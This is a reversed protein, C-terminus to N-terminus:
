RASELVKSGALTAEARNTVGLKSYISKIHSAVTNESVVLQEAIASNKLGMVLHRLVERERRTLGMHQEGRTGIERHLENMRQAATSMGLEDAINRGQSLLTTARRIIARRGSRLAMEAFNVTAWVLPALFGSSEYVRLSEEYQEAATTWREAATLGIARYHNSCWMRAAIVVGDLTNALELPIFSNALERDRNAHAVMYEAFLATNHMAPPMGSNLWSRTRIGISKLTGSPLLSLQMAHGRLMLSLDINPRSNENLVLAAIKKMTQRAYNLDGTEAAILADLTELVMRQGSDLEALQSVEDLLERAKKWYGRAVALQVSYYGSSFEAYPRKWAASATRFIGIYRDATDGQGLVLATRAAQDASTCILEPDEVELAHSVAVISSEMSEDFRLQSFSVTARRQWALCQARRDGFEVASDLAKDLIRESEAVDSMVMLHVVGLRSLVQAHESSGPKAIDTAARLMELVRRNYPFGGQQQAVRLADAELGSDVFLDFADCILDIGASINVANLTRGLGFMAEARRAPDAM